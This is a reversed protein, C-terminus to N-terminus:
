ATVEEEVEAAEEAAAAAEEAAMEAKHAAAEAEHKAKLMAVLSQYKEGSIPHVRFADECCHTGGVWHDGKRKLPVLVFPEKNSAGWIHLVIHDDHRAGDKKGGFVKALALGGALGVLVAAALKAIEM